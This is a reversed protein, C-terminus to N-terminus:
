HCIFANKDSMYICAYNGSSQVQNQNPSDSCRQVAQYMLFAYSFHAVISHGLLPRFASGCHVKSVHINNQLPTHLYRVQSHYSQPTYHIGTYTHQSSHTTSTTNHAIYFTRIRVCHPPACVCACVFVSVRVCVCIYLYICIYVYIYICM